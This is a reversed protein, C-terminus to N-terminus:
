LLLALRVLVFPAKLAKTDWEASQQKCFLVRQMVIHLAALTESEPGARTGNTELERYPKEEGARSDMVFASNGFLAFGPPTLEGVKLFLM